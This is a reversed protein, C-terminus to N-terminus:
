SRLRVIAGQVAQQAEGHLRSLVDRARGTAERQLAGLLPSEAAPLRVTIQIDITATGQEDRPSVDSIALRVITEGGDPTLTTELIKADDLAM